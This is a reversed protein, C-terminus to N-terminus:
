KNTIILLMKIILEVNKCPRSDFVKVLVLLSNKGSGSSSGDDESDGARNLKQRRADNLAKELESIVPDTM